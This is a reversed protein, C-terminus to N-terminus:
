AYHVCAKKVALIDFITDKIFHKALTEIRLFAMKKDNHFAINFQYIYTDTVTKSSLNSQTSVVYIYVIYKPSSQFNAM